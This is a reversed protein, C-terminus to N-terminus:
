SKFNLLNSINAKENSSSKKRKQFQTHSQIIYKNKELSSSQIYNSNSIYNQPSKKTKVSEHNSKDFNSSDKCTNILHSVSIKNSHNFDQKKIVNEYIQSQSISVNETSNQSPKRSNSSQHNVNKLHNKNNILAISSESHRNQSTKIVVPYTSTIDVPHAPKYQYPPNHHGNNSLDSNNKSYTPNSNTSTNEKLYFNHQYDNISKTKSPKPTEPKHKQTLIQNFTTQNISLPKPCSQSFSNIFTEPKFVFFDRNRKSFNDVFELKTNKNKPPKLKKSKKIKKEQKLNQPPDLPNEQLYESNDLTSFNSSFCCNFSFLLSYKPVFWPCLDSETISYIKMKESLQANKGNKIISKRKIQYINTFLNNIIEATDFEDKLAEYTGILSSYAKSIDLNLHKYEIFSANLFTIISNLKWHSTATISNSKIGLSSELCYLEIQSIAAKMCEKKATKIRSPALFLGKIKVLESQYLFITMNYLMQKVLYRITYFDLDESFIHDSNYVKFKRPKISETNRYYNDYYANLESLHNKLKDMHSCLDTNSINKKLWRTKTFIAIKGFLTMVKIFHTINDKKIIDASTEQLISSLPMGENVYTINAGYKYEFDNSPFRLSIDRDHLVRIVPGYINGYRVMIYYAWFVRRNFEIEFCDEVVKYKRKNDMVKLTTTEDLFIWFNHSLLLCAWIFLPSNNDKEQKLLKFAYNGYQVRRISGNKFYKNPIYKAGISLFAYFFYDPFSKNKLKNLFYPVCVPITVNSFEKM